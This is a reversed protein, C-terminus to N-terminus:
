TSKHCENEYKERWYLKCAVCLSEKPDVVSFTKCSFCYYVDVM